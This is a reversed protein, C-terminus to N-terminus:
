RRRPMVTRFLERDSLDAGDDEAMPAASTTRTLSPLGTPTSPRVTPNASAHSRAAAVAEALFAPDKLLTERQEKLMRDRYANLDGGTEHLTSAQRYWQVMMEAPNPSRIIRERLARDNGKTAGAVAEFAEFAKHLEEGYKTEAIMCSVDFRDRQARVEAQAQERAFREEISEQFGQPNTLVDIPQQPNRLADFQRQLEARQRREEALEREFQQRREREALHEALPIRHVQDQQVQVPPADAAQPAPQEQRQEQQPPNALGADNGTDQTGGDEHASAFLAADSIESDLEQETGTM